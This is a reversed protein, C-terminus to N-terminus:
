VVSKRDTAFNTPIVDNDSIGYQALGSNVSDKISIVHTGIAGDVSTITAMAQRFPAPQLVTLSFSPTDVFRTTSIFDASQDGITLTSKTSTGLTAAAKHTVTVKDGNKVTGASSTPTSGNITYKSDTTGSISIPSSAATLGAVTIEASTVDAGKDTGTVAAFSFPDPSTPQRVYQPFWDVEGCGAVALLLLLPLMRLLSRFFSLKM